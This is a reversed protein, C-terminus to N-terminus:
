IIKFVHSFFHAVVYTDERKDKRNLIKLKKKRIYVGTQYTWYLIELLLYNMNGKVILYLHNWSRSCITIHIIKQILFM